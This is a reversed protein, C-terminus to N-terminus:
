KELHKIELDQLGLSSDREGHPGGETGGTSENTVRITRM